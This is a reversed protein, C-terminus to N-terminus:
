VGDYVIVGDIITARVVHRGPEALAAGRPTRLLCLDAAAGPAIRRPRGPDDLAGLYLGLATDGDVREEAGILAGTPTTRQVAAAMASWPDPNTYPADSSAAVPIGAALLSACPYLSAIESPELEARYQDGREAIFGPQTVVTLGLRAVQARAAEDIIGGHEIRDGSRAGATGFAALAYALQLATVCHVAVARRRTRAWAITRVMGDLDVLGDDDLLIKVPGVRYGPSAPLEGAGMLMLKQPFTGGSRAAEFLRAESAGNSASADTVGVVGMALLDRMVPELPPPVAPLRERLWADGRWIRGTLAGAADREVVDAGAADAAVADLAASNLVWLGGTRHQIRVPRAPVLADLVGRDLPGAISEHYGVGRLWAGAPAARDAAQLAARFAAAGSLEVPGLRLSAREAALALLHIHHDILGPILGGGHADLDPGAGRLGEGIEVIRGDRVRVDRGARGELEANRILLEGSM